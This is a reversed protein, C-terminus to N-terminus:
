ARRDSGPGPVLVNRECVQCRGCHPELLDEAVGQGARRTLYAGVAAQHRRIVEVFAEEDGALSRGILEADSAM